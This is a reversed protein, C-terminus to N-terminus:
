ATGRRWAQFREVWKHVTRWSTNFRRAAEAKTLGNDVVARVLDERGRPVCGIRASIHGGAAVRSGQTSRGALGDISAAGGLHETRSFRM